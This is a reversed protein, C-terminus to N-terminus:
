QPLMDKRIFLADGWYNENLNLYLPSHTELLATLIENVSTDNSYMGGTNVEIWIVTASLITKKGGRLVQMEAGQVDIVVLDFLGLNLSELTQTQVQIGESFKIDPREKSHREPRLLSSSAGSNSAQYFTADGSIDSIYTKIANFNKFGSINKQLELFSKSDGEIFIARNMGYDFYEQAEEAYHAGIHLVSECPIRFRSLLNTVKPSALEKLNQM